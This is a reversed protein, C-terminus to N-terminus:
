GPEGSSGLQRENSILNRKSQAVRTLESGTRKLLAARTDGDRKANQPNRCLCDRRTLDDADIVEAIDKEDFLGTEM